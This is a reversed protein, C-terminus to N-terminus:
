LKVLYIWPKNADELTMKQITERDWVLQNKVGSDLTGSLLTRTRGGGIWGGEQFFFVFFFMMSFDSSGFNLM